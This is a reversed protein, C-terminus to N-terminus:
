SDGVEALGLAELYQSAVNRIDFMAEARARAAKRYHDLADLVQLTAAALGDIFAEGYEWPSVQVIRGGEGVLEAAGGWSGCVVPLGCAMAEVVVNPCWDGLRPHIFVDARQMYRPLDDNSVPGVWEVHAAAAPHDQRFTELLQRNINDLPGVILLDVNHQHWIREFVPLIMGLMYEDRLTGASLLCRRGSRSVGPRFHDLDVGNFVIAYNDRRHYLFHDGMEKCFKSQYIIFDSLALDRQMRYNVAMKELTMRRDQYDPPQPRNDFYTPVFIGDVRFVTRVGWRKCLWYFWDGWSTKFILAGQASRLRRHTIQVGQAQFERVLKGAFAAPGTPGPRLNM